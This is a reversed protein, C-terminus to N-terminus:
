SYSQYLLEAIYMVPIDAGATKLHNRLQTMCGINGSVIVDPNADLIHQVKRQGLQTAIEPQEINYTGASGCCMGAEEIEVLTLNPISNLLQRPASQVGQAHLLHCADQYVVRLPKSLPKSERLGIKALYTSFDMSKESFEQAKQEDATGKFLLEYDQIGSGCGAATVIIADVDDPFANFNKSALQQAHEDEGIHLLISGCCNQRPPIIVEIGNKALVHAVAFNIEPALVSQVCGTLLAVRGRKEGKAPLNVPLPQKEPLSDPLLSLMTAMSDPLANKVLKGLKGTQTALRFREPYPLTERIMTRTIKDILPRQRSKEMQSRYGLLLDGYAVGSPCATMCAMCGLCRDIYPQAEEAPLNNELVNKMLYIRGRPSDMEEGLINYTPCDPLCFGCHVCNEIAKAMEPTRPDDNNKINHKM